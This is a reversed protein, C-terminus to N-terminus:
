TFLQAVPVSFFCFCFTYCQFVFMYATTVKYTVTRCVAAFKIM